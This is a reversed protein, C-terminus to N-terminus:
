TGSGGRLRHHVYVLTFFRRLSPFNVASAKIHYFEPTLPINLGWVKRRWCCDGSLRRLRKHRKLIESASVPLSSLALIFLSDYSRAHESTKETDARPYISNQSPSFNRCVEDSQLSCIWMWSCILLQCFCRDCFGGKSIAFQCRFRRRM